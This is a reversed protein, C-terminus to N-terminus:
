LSCITKLNSQPAIGATLSNRNRNFLFLIGILEQKSEQVLDTSLVIVQEGSRNNVGSGRKREM